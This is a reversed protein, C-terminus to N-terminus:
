IFVTFGLLTPGDHCVCSKKKEKKKLMLLQVWPTPSLRSNKVAATSFECLAKFTSPLDDCPYSVSDDELCSYSSDM